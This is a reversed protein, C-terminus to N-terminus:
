EKIKDQETLINGHQNKLVGLLSKFKEQIKYVSRKKRKENNEETKKVRSIIITRKTEVNSASSCWM